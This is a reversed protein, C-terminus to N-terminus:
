VINQDRPKYIINFLFHVFIWLVDLLFNWLFPKWSTHGFFRLSFCYILPRMIFIAESLLALFHTVVPGENSCIKGKNSRKVRFPMSVSIKKGSRKLKEVRSFPNEKFDFKSRASSFFKQINTLTKLSEKIQDISLKMNTKNKAVFNLDLEEFSFQTLQDPSVSDQVIINNLLAESYLVRNPSLFLTRMKLYVKLAEFPFLISLIKNPSDQLSPMFSPLFNEVFFQISTVSQDM